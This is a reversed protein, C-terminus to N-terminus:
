ITGYTIGRERDLSSEPLNMISTILELEKQGLSDTNINKGSKLLQLIAIKMQLTVKEKLTDSIDKNVKQLLSIVDVIKIKDSTEEYIICFNPNTIIKTNDIITGYNYSLEEMITESSSVDDVTTNMEYSYRGTIAELRNIAFIIEKSINSKDYIEYEDYHATITPSTSTPIVRDERQELVRQNTSDDTYLSRNSYVPSIFELPRSLKGEDKPANNELAEKIDNYGLGVTVKSIRLSDYQEQTIKGSDLLEKYIKEDAEILDQAAKKYIEYVKEAVESRSMPNEQKRARDFVKDPIEINDFCVVDKNRWVWSQAVINGEEDRIVFVRGHKDVMSHIMCMEAVNNLEQCCDSLTGIAVALPDTLRLIEYTYNGLTGIIRPISSAVRTKGANYIKQLIEFEEQSYGAIGSVKSLEENGVEINEYKNEKVFSVALEPTLVRNSNITKILQFQKQISSIYKFYDPNTIFVELNKLLFERFDRDYILNFAGFLTHARAVSIVMSINNKEM